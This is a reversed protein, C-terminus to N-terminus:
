SWSWSRPWTGALKGTRVKMAEQIVYGGGIGGGIM